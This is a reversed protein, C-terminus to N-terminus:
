AVIELPAPVRFLEDTKAVGGPLTNASQWAALEPRRKERGM